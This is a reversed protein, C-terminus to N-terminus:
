EKEIALFMRHIKASLDKGIKRGGAIQTGVFLNPNHKLAKALECLNEFKSSIALAHKASIGGILRLTQFLMSEATVDRKKGQFVLRNEAAEKRSEEVSLTRSFQSRMYLLYEITEATNKTYVVTINYKTLGWLTHRIHAPTFQGYDVSDMNGEIIYGVVVEPHQNAYEVIRALQETMRGDRHSAVVDSAAKREFGARAVGNQEFMVDFLSLKGVSLEGPKWERCGIMDAILKRGDTANEREDVLLMCEM